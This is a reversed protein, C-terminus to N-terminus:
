YGEVVDPYRFEPIKYMRRHVLLRVLLFLSLIFVYMMVLQLTSVRIDEISAGPLMSVARLTDNLLQVLSQMSLAALHQVPPLWATAVVTLACYLLLMALPIAVMNTIFFYCSFRGFYYATLPATAIQAALSVGSLRIIWVAWGYSRLAKPLLIDCLPAACFYISVVAAFSMQFGVDFISMPSVAVVVLAAVAIGSITHRARGSVSIVSCVTMMLASRVASLPMGVLMVYTWIATLTLLQVLFRWRWMRNSRWSLMLLLSYIIGLHLGSLALVHSAGSVSYTDRVDKRLLSKDGLTLAYVVALNDGELGLRSYEESMMRRYRSMRIQLKCLLPIKRGGVAVSSMSRALVFAQASFGQVKLYRSYDFASAKFNQPESFRSLCTYAEGSKIKIVNDAQYVTMKVKFPTTPKDCADVVLADFRLTKGVRRSDGLAVCRCEVDHNMVNSDVKPLRASQMRMGGVAFAALYLLMGAMARKRRLVVSIVVLALAAASYVPVSYRFPFNYSLLVGLLFPLVFWAISGHRPNTNGNTVM